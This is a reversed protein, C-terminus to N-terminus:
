AGARRQRATPDLPHAARGASTAALWAQRWIGPIQRWRAASAPGARAQGGPHVSRFRPLSAPLLPEAYRCAANGVLVVAALEPLLALLSPLTAAGARFEAPATAIAGTWWPCANWLLTAQRPIGAERMFGDIARATPDDTDRSVFGSGAPPVVRPGPKELIFLLRASIGGDLPDFDPVHHPTARRLADVYAALPAAHPAALLARRAARTAPDALNARARPAAPM